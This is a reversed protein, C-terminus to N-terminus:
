KQKMLPLFLSEYIRGTYSWGKERGPPYVSHGFEYVKGTATDILFPANTKLETGTKMNHFVYHAQFLQYRGVKAESQATAEPLLEVKGFCLWVLCIAIVTLVVKLFLDAKM